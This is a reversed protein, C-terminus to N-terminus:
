AHDLGMAERVDELTDHAAERARECGAHVLAELEARDALYEEAQARVPALEAELAELLRGKCDTCGIGASRCGEAAWALTAADSYLQHLDWVPCKEPDGPDSRRARAPDTVMGRLKARVEDPAARLAVTNAYSKSMKRGDTGPVKTAKTLLAEPEPLIMRGEGELHGLLRERDRVPISQQSHLIERAVKLAQRDGRERYRRRCDRYLAGAKRGLRGLLEDVRADFDDERGYLRNFHRAVERAFEVHAVQDEGVPVRAARYALIDAAQLLPYGLFGYTALGSGSQARLEKYSPVRELWALPTIMSLLLHLEAHEPVRSQVFLVAAGPSVGCALWDAVVGRAHASLAAPEEYHTTLAHWDAVFFFCEHRDQLEIWNRLVGHYHGLHLRGTPRMGSVVRLGTETDSEAHRRGANM